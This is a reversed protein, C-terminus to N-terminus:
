YCRESVPRSQIIDHDWLYTQCEIIRDFSPIGDASSCYHDNKLLSLYVFSYKSYMRHCNQQQKSISKYVTEM